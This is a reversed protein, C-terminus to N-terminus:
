IHYRCLKSSINRYRNGIDIAKLTVLYINFIYVKISCYINVM